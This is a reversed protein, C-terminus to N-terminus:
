KAGTASTAHVSLIWEDDAVFGFHGSKRFSLRSFRNRIRTMGAFAPIWGGDIGFGLHGQRKRRLLCPIVLGFYKATEDLM